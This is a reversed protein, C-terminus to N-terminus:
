RALHIREILAAYMRDARLQDLAPDVKIWFVFFCYEDEAKELLAM